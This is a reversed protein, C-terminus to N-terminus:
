PVFLGSRLFRATAQAAERSFLLGTHTTRLRLHPSGALRTEAVAVTGDNPGAFRCVLRGVGLGVEGAISGVDRDLPAPYPARELAEPLLEGVLRPGFPWRRAGDLASAGNVPAGLLVARGPPLGGALLANLVVLGGLSHGVLHVVPAPRSAVFEALDAVVRDLGPDRTPYRFQAVPLGLARELNRRLAFLEPGRNWLGHVAVVEGRSRTVVEDSSM